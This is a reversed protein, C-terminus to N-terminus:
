LKQKCLHVIKVVDSGVKKNLKTQKKSYNGLANTGSIKLPQKQVTNYLTGARPVPLM